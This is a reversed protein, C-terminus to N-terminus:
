ARKKFASPVGFSSAIPFRRANQAMKRLVEEKPDLGFKDFLLLTYILVDAAEEAVYKRVDENDFQDVDSRWQFIELLEAAEISISVSLDKPNHFKVWDREESFQRLARLLEEM